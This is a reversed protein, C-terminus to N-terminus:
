DNTTQTGRAKQTETAQVYRATETADLLNMSSNQKNEIAAQTLQVESATNTLGMLSQVTPENPHSTPTASTELRNNESLSQVGGGDLNLLTGMLFSLAVLIVAVIGIVPIPISPSSARGIEFDDDFGMRDRLEDARPDDISELLLFTAEKRDEAWLIKATQLKMRIIKEQQKLSNM